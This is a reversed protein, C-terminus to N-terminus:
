HDRNARLFRKLQQKTGVRISRTRGNAFLIGEVTSNRTVIGQGQWETLWQQLRYQAEPPLTKQQKRAAESIMVALGHRHAAEVVAGVGVGYYDRAHLLSAAPQHRIEVRLSSLNFSSSDHKHHASLEAMVRDLHREWRAPNRSWERVLRSPTMWRSLPPLVEASDGGDGVLMVVNWTIRLLFEIPLWIPSVLFCFLLVIRPRPKAPGLEPIGTYSGGTTLTM